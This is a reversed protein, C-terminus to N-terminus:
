YNETIVSILDENLGMVEINNELANILIEAKEKTIIEGSNVIPMGPPYLLVANVSVRNIVEKSKLSIFESKGEDALEIAESPKLAKNVSVM